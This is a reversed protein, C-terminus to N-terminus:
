CRRLRLVWVLVTVFAGAPLSAAGCRRREYSCVMRALSFLGIGILYGDECFRDYVMCHFDREFYTAVAAAKATFGHAPALKWCRLIVREMEREGYPKTIQLGKSAPRKARLAWAETSRMAISLLMPDAWFKCRVPFALRRCIGVGSRRKPM